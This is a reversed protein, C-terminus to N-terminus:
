EIAPKKMLDFVEKGDMASVKMPPYDRGGDYELLVAPKSLQYCLLSGQAEM